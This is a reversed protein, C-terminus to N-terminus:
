GGCLRGGSAGCFNGREGVGGGGCGLAWITWGVQGVGGGFRGCDAGFLVGNFSAFIGRFNGLGVAYFGVIQEGGIVEFLPGNEADALDQGKRRHLGSGLWEDGIGLLVVGLCFFGKSGGCFIGWFSIHDFGPVGCGTDGFGVSQGDFCQGFEVFAEIGFFKEWPFGQCKLFLDVLEKEHFGMAGTDVKEDARDECQDGESQDHQRAGRGKGGFAVSVGHKEKFSLDDPQPDTEEETTKGRHDVVMVKLAERPDSVGEGGDKKEKAKDGVDAVAVIPCFAPDFEADTELRGFERLQGGDRHDRPEEGM